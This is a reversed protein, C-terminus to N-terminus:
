LMSSINYNRRLSTESKETAASFVRSNIKHVKKQNQLLQDSLGTATASRVTSLILTAIWVYKPRTPNDLTSTRQSGSTLKQAEFTTTHHSCSVLTKILQLLRASDVVECTRTKAAFHVVVELSLSTIPLTRKSYKHKPRLWNRTILWPCANRRSM